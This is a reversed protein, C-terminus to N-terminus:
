EGICRLVLTVAETGAESKKIRLLDGPVVIRDLGLSSTASEAVAGSNWREQGDTLYDADFLGIRITSVGSLSPVIALIESLTVFKDFTRITVWTTGALIATTKERNGACLVPVSKSTKRGGEIM